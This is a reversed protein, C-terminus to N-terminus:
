RTPYGIREVKGGIMIANNNSVAIGNYPTEGIRSWTQGDDRSMWTGRTGTALWGSSVAAVASLYPVAGGAPGLVWTAGGDETLAVNPRSSDPVAYDGGVAMGHRGRFAISFAGSSANGAPLPLDAVSWHMGYDNTHFVRAVTHSGGTVFWAQGNPGTTLCTNSAAFAGEGPLAPPTQMQAWHAGADRSVLVTFHGAIPDGVAIVDHANWLAIADLFVGRRTDDYELTWTRGGDKTLFIRATDAGAVMAHATSRDVAAIGRLDFTRAAAITDVQWSPVADGSSTGADTSHMVVGHQGSAWVTGDQAVSVGRLSVQLVLLAFIL